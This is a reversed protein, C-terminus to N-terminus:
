SGYKEVLIGLHKNKKDSKLKKILNDYALAWNIAETYILFYESDPLRRIPFAYDKVWRKATCWGHFGFRAKTFELIQKKGTFWYTGDYVCNIDYPNFHDLLAESIEPVVRNIFVTKVGEPIILRNSEDYTGIDEYSTIPLDTEDITMKSPEVVMFKGKDDEGSAVVSYMEVEYSLRKVANFCM